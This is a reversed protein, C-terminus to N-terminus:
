AKTDYLALAIPIMALLCVATRLTNLPTWDRSYNQWVQDAGQGLARADVLALSENLPIHYGLTLGFGGLLYLIAAVGLACASKKHGLWVGLAACGLAFLPTLFFPVFFVANRVARNIGQMAEIASVSDTQDLGPMAVFSFSFFFGALTGMLLLVLLIGARFVLVM